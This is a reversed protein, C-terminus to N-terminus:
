PAPFVDVSRPSAISRRLALCPQRACRARSSAPVAWASTARMVVLQARVRAVRRRARPASLDVCGLSVDSTRAAAIAEASRPAPVAPQAERAPRVRPAAPAEAYAPRPACRLMPLFRRMRFAERMARRLAACTSASVGRVACARRAANWRRRAAVIAAWSRPSHSRSAHPCLTGQALPGSM